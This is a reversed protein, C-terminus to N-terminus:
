ENISEMVWGPTVLQTILVQRRSSSEVSLSALELICRLPKKGQALGTLSAELASSRPAYAHITEALDRSIIEYSKYKDSNFDYNYYDSDMIFVRYPAGNPVNGNLLESYPTPCYRAFCEMDVLWGSPDSVIALLRAESRPGVMFTDYHFQGVQVKRFPYLEANQFARIAIPSAYFERMLPEVREPFRVIKLKDEITASQLFNEAVEQMSPPVTDGYSKSIVTSSLHGSKSSVEVYYVAGLVAVVVIAAVLLSSVPIKRKRTSEGPLKTDDADDWDSGFEKRRKERIADSLMKRVDVTPDITSSKVANTNLKKQFKKKLADGSTRKSRFDGAFDSDSDFDSDSVARLLERRQQADYHVPSAASALDVFEQDDSVFEDTGGLDSSLDVPRRKVGSLSEPIENPYTRARRTANGQPLGQEPSSSSSQQDHGEGLNRKQREPLFPNKGSPIPSDFRQLAESAPSPRGAPDLVAFEHGCYTHVILQGIQTHDCEILLGCKPCKELFRKPSSNM